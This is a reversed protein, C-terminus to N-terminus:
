IDKWEEQLVKDVMEASVDDTLYTSGISDPLIYFVKDKVAKKDTKLFKKILQRNLRGPVSVPLGYANIVSYIRESEAGSM